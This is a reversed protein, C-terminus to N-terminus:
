SEEAAGPDAPAQSCISLPEDSADRGVLEVAMQGANAWTLTRDRASVSDIMEEPGDDLRWRGSM